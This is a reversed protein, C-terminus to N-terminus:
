DNYHERTFKEVGDWDAPILTKLNEITREKTVCLRVAQNEIAREIATRVLRGNGLESIGQSYLKEWSMESRLQFGATSNYDLSKLTRISIKQLEFPTYDPFNIIRTFRSRLGPNSNLFIKMKETYGAAIVVLDNRDNEMRTLLTAIAERGYLDEESDTLMYAEDIFLVGGMAEDLKARTLIPTQGLYGGVLESKHTEICHGESLLDLARLIKGILRAVTTKGTGPNGEFVLHLMPKSGGLKSERRASQIRAWDAIRAIDNKVSGLGTMRNLETMAKKYAAEDIGRHKRRKPTKRTARSPEHALTDLPMANESKGNQLIPAHDELANEFLQEIPELLREKFEDSPTTM